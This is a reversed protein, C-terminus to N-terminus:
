QDRIWIWLCQREQHQQDGIYNQVWVNRCRQENHGSPGPPAYVPLVLSIVFTLIWVGFSAQTVGVHNNRKWLYMPVVFGGWWASVEYGARSLRTEDLKIILSNISIGLAVDLFIPLNIGFASALWYDVAYYVFPAAVLLWAFTNDVIGFEASTLTQTVVEQSVAVSDFPNGTSPISSQGDGYDQQNSLSKAACLPCSKLRANNYENGCTVCKVM